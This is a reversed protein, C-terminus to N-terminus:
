KRACAVDYQSVSATNRSSQAQEGAYVGGAAGFGFERERHTSRCMLRM